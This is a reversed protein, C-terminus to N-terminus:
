RRLIGALVAIAAVAGVWFVFSWAILQAHKQDIRKDVATMNRSLEDFKIQLATTQAAMRDALRAEMRLMEQRMEALDGRIGDAWVVLDAALTRQNGCSLIM